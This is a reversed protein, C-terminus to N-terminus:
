KEGEKLPRVKALEALALKCLEARDPKGDIGVILPANATSTGAADWISVQWDNVRHYGFDIILFPYSDLYEDFQEWFHTIANLEVEYPTLMTLNAHKMFRQVRKEAYEKAIELKKFQSSVGGFMNSSLSIAGKSEKNCFESYNIVITFCLAKGMKGYLKGSDEVWNILDSM